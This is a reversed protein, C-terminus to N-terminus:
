PSARQGRGRDPPGPHRGLVDGRRAPQGQRRLEPRDRHLPLRPRRHGRRRGQRRGLVLRQATGPPDRALAGVAGQRRAGGEVPPSRRSRRPRTARPGRPLRAFVGAEEVVELIRLAEEATRALPKTCLMAKGAAAALRVAEEHLHNPLGVVVTDTEPHDIAARLDTSWEPVGWEASATRAREESRSYVVQVRDRSRQGHLTATYFMGILGTGLMTVSHSQPLAMEELDPRPRGNLWWPGGVLAGAGRARRRGARGPRAGLRRRGRRRGGRPVRGRERRRRRRHRAAARGPAPRRLDRVYGPGLTGAPFLKVLSAGLAWAEEVESPTMAGPIAPVGRALCREVVAPRTAPGVCLAAGADVAADVDAPTRVTGAAVLVDGRRALRAIAGSADDSDLTIEVIRVGGAVLADVVADVRDPDVRRLIAVVREARVQTVAPAARLREVTSM